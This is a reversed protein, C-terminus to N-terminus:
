LAKDEGGSPKKGESLPPENMKETVNDLKKQITLVKQMDQNEQCIEQAIKYYDIAAQYNMAQYAEDGLKELKNSQVDKELKELEKIQLEIDKLKPELEEKAEKYGEKQSNKLAEDYLAKAGTLNKNKLELDGQTIIKNIQIYDKIKEIKENIEKPNYKENDKALKKAEKYKELAKDFKKEKLNKDGEEVLQSIKVKKTLGRELLKSKVKLKMFSAQAIKYEKLADDYEGDKIYDDGMREHKIMNARNQAELKADKAKKYVVFGTMIMILVMGIAIKKYLMIKEKPNEKFIKNVFISAMTYSKVMNSQRKLISDEVNSLFENPDKSEKLANLVANKNAKEWAGQNAIYIVDNDKLAIKKSVTIKMGTAQGLYSVLNAREPHIDIEEEDIKGADKMLQAVSQDKSKLLISGKRLLYVRTNGLTAWIIKNYNTIVVTISAKLRISRSQSELLRHANKLYTKLKRRSFSPKEGFDDFISKAAIEASIVDDESDLSDSIVWCGYDDTEMFAFYGKNILSSGSESIFGTNFESNEKRM